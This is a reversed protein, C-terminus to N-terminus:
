VFVQFCVAGEVVAVDGPVEGLEEAVTVALHDLVVLRLGLWIRDNWVDVLETLLLFSNISQSKDTSDFCGSMILLDISRFISKSLFSFSTSPGFIM